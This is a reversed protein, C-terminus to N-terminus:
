TAGWVPAHISVVALLLYFKGDRDRGMRARPNFSTEGYRLSIPRATAGWVPAHISVNKCRRWRMECNDRGM